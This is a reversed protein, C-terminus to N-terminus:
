DRKSLIRISDVIKHAHKMLELFDQLLSELADEDVMSHDSELFLTDAAQIHAQSFYDRFKIKIELTLQAHINEDQWLKTMAQNLIVLKECLYTIYQKTTLMNLDIDDNDM